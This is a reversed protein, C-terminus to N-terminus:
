VRLLELDLDQLSYARLKNPLGQAPRVVCSQLAPCLRMVFVGLQHVLERVKMDESTYFSPM